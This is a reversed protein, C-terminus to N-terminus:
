YALVFGTAFNARSTGSGDSVWQRSSLRLSSARHSHIARARALASLSGLQEM